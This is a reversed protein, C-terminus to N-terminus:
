KSKELFLDWKKENEHTRITFHKKANRSSSRWKGREILYFKILEFPIKLVVIWFFSDRKLRVYWINLSSLFFFSFPFVFNSIWCFIFLFNWINWWGLCASILSLSIYIYFYLNRVNCASQNQVIRKKRYHLISQFMNYSTIHPHMSLQVCSEISFLYYDTEFITDSYYLFM